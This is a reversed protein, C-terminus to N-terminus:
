LQYYWPCDRKKTSSNRSQAKSAVRQGCACEIRILTPGFGDVRNASNKRIISFGASAAFADLEGLIDDLNDYKHTLLRHSVPADETGEDARAAEAAPRAQAPQSPRADM